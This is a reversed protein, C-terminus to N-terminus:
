IREASKRRRVISMVIFFVLTILSVAEGARWVVPSETIPQMPLRGWEEASDPRILGRHLLISGVLFQTTLFSVGVTIGMCMKYWCPKQEATLELVHCALFVVMLCAGIGWVAPVNMWALFFSFILNKNQLLEWPFLGSGLWLLLLTMVLIRKGSVSSNKEQYQKTFLCWLYFIVCLMVAFGPALSQVHNLGSSWFDASAGGEFFMFLWLSSNIGFARINEPILRGVMDLNKYMFYVQPILLWANLFCVAAATKCILLVVKKNWLRKGMFALWIVAMGVAMLFVSMSSAALLSLAVTPLIWLRERHEEETYLRYLGWFLLPLFCWAFNKGMDGNIFLDSIRYPCWTYLMSGILGTETRGTCKAFCVFSIVAAAINILWMTIQYAGLISMGLKRLVAPIVLFVDTQFYAASKGYELQNLPQIRVSFSEGLQEEIIEIRSLTSLVNEGQPIYDTMLPLSIVLVILTLIIANGANKEFICKMRNKM